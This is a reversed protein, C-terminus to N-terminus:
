KKLAQYLDLKTLVEYETKTLSLIFKGGDIYSDSFDDYEMCDKTSSLIDALLSFEDATVKLTLKKAM